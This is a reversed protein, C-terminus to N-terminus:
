VGLASGARDVARELTLGVVYTSRVPSAVAPIWAASSPQGTPCTTCREAPVKLIVRGSSIVLPMTSRPSPGVWVLSLIGTPVLALRMVTPVCHNLNVWGVLRAVFATLPPRLT